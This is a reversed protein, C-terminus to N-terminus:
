LEEMEKKFKELFEANENEFSSFEFIRKDIPIVTIFFSTSNKITNSDDLM